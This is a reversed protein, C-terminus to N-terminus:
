AAALGSGDHNMVVVGSNQLLQTGMFGSARAYSYDQEEDYGIATDMGGTDFAHGIASKHYMFCKEANTGKGPLRPHVLWNVGMWQKMRVMDSWGNDNTIIPRTSVYDASAYSDVTLLYSNFAPTILAFVNNDWPVENNQLIALAKVCLAESAAAAGGTNVTGTNLETIIESDIKRNIVAMTDMQLAARQNGQSAFINFRTKRKLSHWEALTVTTQTNSNQSAPIMGDVGRTVAEETGSGHVLFEAENGKVVAETTVTDRVLSQRQEFAKIMEQRFQKQAADVTM